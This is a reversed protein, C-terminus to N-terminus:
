LVFYGWCVIVYIVESCCVFYFMFLILFIFTFIKWFICKIKVNSLGVLVNPEPIYVGFNKNAKSTEVGILIPCAM